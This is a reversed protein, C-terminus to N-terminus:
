IHILSLATDMAQMASDEAPSPLVFVKSDLQEEIPFYGRLMGPAIEELPEPVDPAASASSGNGGSTTSCAGLLASLLICIMPSYLTRM